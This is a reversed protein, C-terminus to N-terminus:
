SESKSAYGGKVEESSTYGRVGLLRQNVVFDLTGVMRDKTVSLQKEGKGKGEFRFCGVREVGSRSNDGKASCIVLRVQPCEFM